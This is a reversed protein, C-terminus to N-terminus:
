LQIGEGTFLKEIKNDDLLELFLGGSKRDQMVARIIETDITNKQEAYGYVLSLDCISNIVRPIGRSYYWIMICAATDFIDLRDGAISLRHKIYSVCEDKALPEIHYQVSVRQAFQSLEPQRLKSLLEPQGSLILQLKQGNETNLNTLMRLQELADLDLNQAEDIILICLRNQSFEKNIFNILKQYQEVKSGSTYEIGYVSLIWELLENFKYAAHSLLGITASDNIDILLKRILTTKGSGVEGTIVM